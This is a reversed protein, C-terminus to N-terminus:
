KREWHWVVSRHKSRTTFIAFGVYPLLALPIARGEADAHIIPRVLPSFRFGARSVLVRSPRGPCSSISAVDVLGRIDGAM